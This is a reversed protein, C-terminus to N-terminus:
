NNGDTEALLGRAADLLGGAPTLEAAEPSRRLVARASARRIVVCLLQLIEGLIKGADGGTHVAKARALARLTKIGQPGWAGSPESVMPTFTIGQNACENDTGMYRRKYVEYESAASARTQAFTALYDARQPSTVAFDLAAPAGGLWTSLYVDAPRRAANDPHDPSPQLLSPKELEVSCGASSAFRGVTNRTANHRLV